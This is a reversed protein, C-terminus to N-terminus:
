GHEIFEAITKERRLTSNCCEDYLVIFADLLAEVGLVTQDKISSNFLLRELESLRSEVDDTLNELMIKKISNYLIIVVLWEFVYVHV